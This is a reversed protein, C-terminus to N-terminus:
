RKSDLWEYVPIIQIEKDNIRLKGSEEQTIILGQQLNHINMAEMLGRIERNKTSEDELTLSVQVAGTIKLADKILFDCEYRKKHYYLEMNQKKLTMFILNELLWGKDQSFKFSISNVLGTDTCYIKKPNALQKKISNDYKTLLYILYSDEAYQIYEKVTESSIGLTKAINSYSFPKAINSIVFYLLDFVDKNNRLNNPYIIDKLYITQFYNRLIEQKLENDKELVVRPFAGFELYNNFYLLKEITTPKHINNFDLYENFTLPYVTIAFYRGSLRTSIKKTLVTSTSGTLIIKVNDSTDFLTKITQVWYDYNQIEDIFLYLTAPKKLAMYNEILEILYAPDKSKSQLLPEDLNIYLICEPPINKNLLKKIIQYTLTSKGTRRAGTLLLIERAKIYKSLGPYWHLRDVGTYFAKGFWWPNQRELAITIKEDM